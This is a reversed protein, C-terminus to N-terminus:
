LLDADEPRVYIVTEVTKPVVVKARTNWEQGDQMETAPEDWMFQVFSDDAFRYVMITTNSWRKSEVIEYTETMEEMDLDDVFYEYHQDAGQKFAAVFEEARSM